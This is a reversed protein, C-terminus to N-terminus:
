CERYEDGNRVKKRNKKYLLQLGKLTLNPDYTHFINPECGSIIRALGGTAIVKMDPKQFQEQIKKIIYLSEGVHGYVIGARLSGVTDQVLITGPDKLEIKPLQAANQYIADACVGIGPATIGTLFEGEESVVDFTTATGYDIVTLFGGYIDHAGVMNVIRDAGLEKPNDMRINIGTKMGAGVVLPQIGFYKRIGHTLSYMINPVVSSIIADKLETAQIHAQTFLSHLFIGIEDSTRSQTTTMRWSAKLTEKEYVGLVINTNGVDIVLLM